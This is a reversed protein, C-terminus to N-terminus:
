MVLGNMPSLIELSNSPFLGLVGMALVALVLTVFNRIRRSTALRKSEKATQKISNFM